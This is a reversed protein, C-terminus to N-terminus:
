LPGALGTKEGVAANILTVESLMNREVSVRLQQFTANEPEFATISARPYLAKFFLVAMGINSGCDVIHPEPVRRLLGTPETSSSKTPFFSPTAKIGSVRRPVRPDEALRARPIGGGAPHMGPWGFTIVRSLFVVSSSARRSSSREQACSHNLATM